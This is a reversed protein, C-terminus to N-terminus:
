EMTDREFDTDWAPFRTGDFDLRAKWAQKHQHERPIEYIKDGKKLRSRTQHYSFPVSYEVCQMHVDLVWTYDCVRADPDSEGGVSVTEILPTAQGQSDTRTYATFYRRLNVPGQNLAQKM